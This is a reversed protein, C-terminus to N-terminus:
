ENTEEKPQWKKFVNYYKGDNGLAKKSIAMALGTMNDYFDGDQCKVITKTGDAWMVITMPYNFYVNKIEPIYMGTKAEDFPDTTDGPLSNEVIYKSLYTDNKPILWDPRMSRLKDLLEKKGYIADYARIGFRWKAPDEYIFTVQVNNTQLFMNAVSSTYPIKRRDLDKSINTITTRAYVYNPALFLVKKM